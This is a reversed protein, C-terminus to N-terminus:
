DLQPISLSILCSSISFDDKDTIFIIVAFPKDREGGVSYSKKENGRGAERFGLPLTQELWKVETNLLSQARLVLEKMSVM